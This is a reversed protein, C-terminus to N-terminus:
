GETMLQIAIKAEEAISHPQNTNGTGHSWDSDLIRFPIEHDDLLHQLHPIASRQRSKGLLRAADFRFWPDPHWTLQALYHVAAKTDTGLLSNAFARVVEVQELTEFLHSNDLIYDANFAFETANTKTMLWAGTADWYSEELFDYYKNYAQLKKLLRAQGNPFWRKIHLRHGDFEYLLQGETNEIQAFMVIGDTFTKTVKERGRAQWRFHTGVPKGDEFFGEALLTNTLRDLCFFRGSADGNAYICEEDVGDRGDYVIGTFPVGQYMAGTKIIDDKWDIDCDPVRLM